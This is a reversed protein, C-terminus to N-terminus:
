FKDRGAPFVPVSRSGPLLFVASEPAARRIASLLRPAPSFASKACVGLRRLSFVAGSQTGTKYPPAREAAQGRENQHELIEVATVTGDSITVRVKAYIYGADYEGTYQGDATRSIDIRQLRINQIKLKYDRYDTYCAAIHATVCFLIVASLVRHRRLRTKYDKKM